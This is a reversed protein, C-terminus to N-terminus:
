ESSIAESIIKEKLQKKFSYFLSITNHSLDIMGENSLISIMPLFNVTPIRSAEFIANITHEVAERIKMRDNYKDLFYKMILDAGSGLAVIDPHESFSGNEQFLYLKPAEDTFYGLIFSSKRGDENKNISRVQNGFYELFEKEKLKEIHTEKVSECLEFELLHSGASGLLFQGHGLPRIKKHTYKKLTPSDCNEQYLAFGDSAFILKNSAILGIVVTM